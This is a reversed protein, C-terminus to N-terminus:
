DARMVDDRRAGKDDGTEVDLCILPARQTCEAVHETVSRPVHGVRSPTEVDVRDM